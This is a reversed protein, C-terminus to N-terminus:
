GVRLYDAMSHYHDPDSEPLARRRYFEDRARSWTEEDCTLDQSLHSYFAELPPWERDARMQRM